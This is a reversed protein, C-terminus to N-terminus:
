AAERGECVPGIGSAISEPVTLARGCRGCRGEHWIECAPPTEGCYIFPWAWAFARASPADQGVRSKRGHRYTACNFITGLYQYDNGNDPGTLLSVFWLHSASGDGQVIRYTFRAGTRQSVLTLRARGALAFALAHDSALRARTSATSETVSAPYAGRM